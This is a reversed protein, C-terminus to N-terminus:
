ADHGPELDRLRDFGLAPETPHHAAGDDVEVVLGVHDGLDVQQIIQGSVWGRCGRLVPTAAPGPDWECHAFKDVEDGTEEGFMRALAMDSAGLFHIVLTQAGAAVRYTHNRKSLCVMIRPPSISCQTFFGVLCGSRHGEAIATVVFMPYDLSGVLSEFAPVADLDAM